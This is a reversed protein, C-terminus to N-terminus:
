AHPTEGGTAGYAGEWYTSRVAATGIVLCVADTACRSSFLAISSAAGNEVTRESFRLPQSVLVIAGARLRWVMTEGAGGAAPERSESSRSPNLDMDLEPRQSGM